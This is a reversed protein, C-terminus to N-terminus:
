SALYTIFPSHCFEDEGGREREKEGRDNEEGAGTWGTNETGVLCAWM